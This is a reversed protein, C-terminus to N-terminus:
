LVFAESFLVELAEGYACENKRNPAIRRFGYPFLTKSSSKYNYNFCFSTYTYLISFGGTIFLQQWSIKM